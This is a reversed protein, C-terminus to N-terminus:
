GGRRRETARALASREADTLSERGDRAIKSLIRDVEREEAAREERRRAADRRAEEDPDPEARAEPAAWGAGAVADGARLRWLMFAAYGACAIAVAMVTALDRVAAVLGVLAAAGLTFAAAVRPADFAGRRRIIIAEAVRGGDLPLMPLLSLLAVQIGTWQVFWLAEHWWPHPTALWAASFPDPFAAAWDGEVGALVVGVTALQAASAAPGICAALLAPVWGPAPDIGQLTGLPWLTVEDASGGAARVVLARCWERHAVVYLLAGLAMAVTRLGHLGAADGPGFMGRLVLLVAYVLFLFHLRLRIGALRGIPLSWALPNVPAPEPREWSM